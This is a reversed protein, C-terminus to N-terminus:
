QCSQSFDTSVVGIPRDCNSLDTALSQNTSYETGWIQVNTVSWGPGFFGKHVLDTFYYMVPERVIFKRHRFQVVPDGM